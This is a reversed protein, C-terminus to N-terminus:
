HFDRSKIALDELRESYDYLAGAVIHTVNDSHEVTGKILLLTSNM